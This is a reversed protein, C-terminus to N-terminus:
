SCDFSEVMCVKARTESRYNNKNYAVADELHVVGAILSPSSNQVANGTQLSEVFASTTAILLMKAIGVMYGAKM